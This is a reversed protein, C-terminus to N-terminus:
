TAVLYDLQLQLGQSRLCQLRESDQKHQFRASPFVVKVCELGTTGPGAAKCRSEIMDALIGDSTSLCGIFTLSTLNPCLPNPKLINGRRFKRVLENTVSENDVNGEVCLSTLTASASVLTENLEHYSLGMSILSLMKLPCTSRSILSPLRLQFRLHNRLLNRICLSELSPLHLSDFFESLGQSTGIELSQMNHRILNRSRLSTVDHQPTTINLLGLCVLAPCMCLVDFCDDLSIPAELNLRTIQSWPVRLLLFISFPGSFEFGRLRPMDGLGAMIRKLTEAPTHTACLSIHELFGARGCPVQLETPFRFDSTHPFTLQVARWRHVHKFAIQLISRILDPSAIPHSAQLCFSLPLLMSRSFWAELTGFAPAVDCGTVTISISSWLQPTSFAVQRWRRCIQGLLLPAQHRMPGIYQTRPLCQVFIDSLIEPPVRRLPSLIARHTGITDQVQRRQLRLQKLLRETEEEIRLLEATHEMLVRQVLWTEATSPPNNSIFLHEVGARGEHEM